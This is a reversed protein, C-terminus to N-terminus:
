FSFKLNLYLTNLGSAYRGTADSLFCQAYLGADLSTFLNYNVTPFVITSNFDPSYTVSCGATLRPTVQRTAGAYFSWTYPMLNKASFQATGEYVGNYVVPVPNMTYLASVSVYWGPDFTYDLMASGSFDSETGPGENRVPFWTMEGKFGADGISGAWGSGIAYHNYYLGGLVQIDYHLRNFKYMLAAVTSDSERSPKWALEAANSGGPSWVARLADAGPREEYDFDLYNYANFIDNPNWVTNVGWNIRQRGATVSIKEGNYAILARDFSTTFVMQDDNVWLYSLEYLGPDESVADGFDPTLRIQDGTFLRNRMELRVLFRPSIDWRFNIRNHLLNSYAESYPENIYSFSQLDKIYGKVHFQMKKEEQAFATQTCYLVLLFVSLIQFQRKM